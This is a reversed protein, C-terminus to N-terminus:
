KEDEFKQNYRLKRYTRYIKKVTPYIVPINQAIEIAKQKIVLSLRKEPRISIKKAKNGSPLSSITDAVVAFINYKELCLKRAEWIEKKYKECYNESIAKEIIKISEEINNIDIMTFSNKPFYEAVSPDGYYIPYAGALYADLIKDTWYHPVLSNEIALHYKYPAVANWKIGSIKTDPGFVGPLNSFADLGDKFHEKMKIIFEKRAKAGATRTKHSAVVSMLKDKPIDTMARLYDYSKFNDQWDSFKEGPKRRRMFLYSSYGQDRFIARPHNIKRNCTIIWGFQKIFKPDYIKTLDTEQTVLITNEPPCVAKEKKSLGEVIVWWDPNEVEQNAFFQCNGVVGKSEPTVKIIPMEPFTTTFKVKIM